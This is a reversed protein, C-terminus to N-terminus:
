AGAKEAQARTWAPGVARLVEVPGGPEAPDFVGITLVGSAFAGTDLNTRHPLLEPLTFDPKGEWVPTHGHVVHAELDKPRARLFRERIWLCVDESQRGLPTKPALGAHVYI